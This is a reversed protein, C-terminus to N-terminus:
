APRPRSINAGGTDTGTLAHACAYHPKAATQRHVRLDQAGHRHDPGHDDAQVVQFGRASAVTHPQRGWDGPQAVYGRHSQIAECPLRRGSARIRITAPWSSILTNSIM